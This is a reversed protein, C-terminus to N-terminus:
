PCQAIEQLTNSPTEHQGVLALYLDELGVPRRSREGPWQPAGSDWDPRRLWALTGDALSKTALVGVEDAPAFAPLESSFEVERVQDRLDELEGTLRVKGVQLVLALLRRRMATDLGDAPEDLVLLDARSALVVAALAWQRQGKSLEGFRRLPTVGPLERLLEGCWWRDFHPTAAAKLDLLAQLRIGAPPVHNDLMGAVRGLVRAPRPLTADGWLGIEGSTPSMLGMVLKFLTTKGSGNPGVIAALRGPEVNLSVGSLAASSGYRRTVNCIEIM